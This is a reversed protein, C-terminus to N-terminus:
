ILRARVTYVVSATGPQYVSSVNLTSWDISQDNLAAGKALDMIAHRIERGMLLGAAERSPRTDARPIDKGLVHHQRVIVQAHEAAVPEESM